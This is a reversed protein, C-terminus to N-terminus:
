LRGDLPAGLGREEADGHIECQAQGFAGSTQESVRERQNGVTQFRDGIHAATQDNVETEFDGNFRRVFVM